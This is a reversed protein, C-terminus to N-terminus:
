QTSAQKLIRPQYTAGMSEFVYEPPDGLRTPSTAAAL